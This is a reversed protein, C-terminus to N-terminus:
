NRIANLLNRAFMKNGQINLHLGRKGLQKGKINSNEVFNISASKIFSNVEENIKSAKPEDTRMILNSITVECKPLISEIQHKLSILKEFIEKPTDTMANNTGVHIIVKQLEEHLLDNLNEKIDDIKGGPISQVRIHRTKSLKSEEIGNLMSDGVILVTKKKIKRYNEGKKKRTESLNSDDLENNITEM